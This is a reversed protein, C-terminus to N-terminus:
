LLIRKIISVHNVSKELFVDIKNEDMSLCLIKINEGELLISEPAGLNFQKAMEVSSEHIESTLIAYQFIKDSDEVDIIASTSSRLIYGTVGKLKRIEALSASLSAFSSNEESVEESVTTVTIGNSFETEPSTKQKL